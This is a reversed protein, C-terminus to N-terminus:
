LYQAFQIEQLKGSISVSGKVAFDDRVGITEALCIANKLELLTMGTKKDKAKIKVEQQMTKGSM